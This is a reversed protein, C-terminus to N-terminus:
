LTLFTVIRSEFVTYKGIYIANFMLLDKQKSDLQIKFTKNSLDIDIMNAENFGFYTHALPNILKFLAEKASFILTYIENKSPYNKTSIFQKDFNTLINKEIVSFKTENIIVETDIGISKYNKKLAVAAIAFGKTHSISGVIENPWIPAGKDDMPLSKIKFGLNKAAKFVCHRGGIFEKIRKPHASQLKEPISIEFEKPDLDDIKLFCFEVNNNKFM